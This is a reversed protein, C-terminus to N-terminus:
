RYDTQYGGQKRNKIDNHNNNLLKEPANIHGAICRDNHKNKKQAANLKTAEAYDAFVDCPSIDLCFVSRYVDCLINDFIM